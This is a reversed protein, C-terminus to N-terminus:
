SGADSAKRASPRSPHSAARGSLLQHNCVRLATRLEAACEALTSVASGGRLAWLLLADQWLYLSYSLRGVWRIPAWELIRGLLWRPHYITSLLLLAACLSTQPWRPYYQLLYVYLVILIPSSWAPLLRRMWQQHNGRKVWIAVMAPILLNDLQIETHSSQRNGHQSATSSTRVVDLSQGLDRHSRTHPTEMEEPFLAARSPHLLLAGRGVVVLFAFTFWWDM